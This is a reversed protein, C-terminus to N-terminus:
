PIDTQRAIAKGATKRTIEVLKLLRQTRSFTCQKNLRLEVNALTNM